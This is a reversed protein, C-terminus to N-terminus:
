TLLKRMQISTTEFGMQVYLSQAGLNDGFVNLGISVVGQARLEDEAVLMIARGYGHRRLDERVAFDYGFAAMGESTPRLHVWVMGVELDGDYATWFRHGESDLGDPLLRAFDQRSKERAEEIPMTGSSAISRAYAEDSTTRYALYQEQTMPELRVDPM